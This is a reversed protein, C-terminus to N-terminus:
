HRHRIDACQHPARAGGHGGAVPHCDSYAEEGSSCGAVWVRLTYGDPKNQLLEPLIKKRLREFAEPDRFFSTVGILLEKFLIDSEVESKGLYTIYDKVSDIQHVHMRREIRRLITNKKYLSFDHGTRTRLIICIKQLADPM